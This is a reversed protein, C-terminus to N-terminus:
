LVGLGWAISLIVATVAVTWAMNAVDVSVAVPDLTLIVFYHSNAPVFADGV